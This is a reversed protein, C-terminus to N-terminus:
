MERPIAIGSVVRNLIREVDPILRLTKRLKERLIQDDHLVQVVDQRAKLDLIDLLHQGIWSRILRGGM